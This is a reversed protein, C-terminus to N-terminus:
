DHRSWGSVCGRGFAGWSGSGGGGRVGIHDASASSTACGCGHAHGSRASIPGKVRSGKINSVKGRVHILAQEKLNEISNAWHGADTNAAVSDGTAGKSICIHVEVLHSISFAGKIGHVEGGDLITRAADHPALPIRGDAARPDSVDKDLIQVFRNIVLLEIVGERQKPINEAALDHGIAVRALGLSIAIHVILCGLGSLSGNLLQVTHENVSLLHLNTSEHAPSFPRALGIPGVEIHLVNRTLPVISLQLLLEGLITLDHAGSMLHSDRLLRVFLRRGLCGRHLIGLLLCLGLLGLRFFSLLFVLLLFPCLLFLWSLFILGLFILLCSLLLLLFSLWLLRLFGFSLAKAESKDVKHFM